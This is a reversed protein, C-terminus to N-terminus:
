VGARRVLVGGADEIARVGCLPAAARPKPAHRHVPPLLLRDADGDIADANADVLSSGGVGGDPDALRELDMTIRARKARKDRTGVGNAGHVLADDFALKCMARAYEDSAERM